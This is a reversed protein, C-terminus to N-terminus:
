APIKKLGFYFPDGKTSVAKSSPGSLDDEDRRHHWTFTNEYPRYFFLGTKDPRLEHIHEARGMGVLPDDGSTGMKTLTASTLELM